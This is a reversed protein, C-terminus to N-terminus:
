CFIRVKLYLFTQCIHFRLDQWCYRLSLREIERARRDSPRRGGLDEPVLIAGGLHFLAGDELGAPGPRLWAAGEQSNDRFFLYTSTLKRTRLLLFDMLQLM